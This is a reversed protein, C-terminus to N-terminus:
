EYRNLSVMEVQRRVHAPTVLSAIIYLTYFPVRYEVSENCSKSLIIRESCVYKYLM